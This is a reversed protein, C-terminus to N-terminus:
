TTKTTKKTKKKKKESWIFEWKYELTKLIFDFLTKKM